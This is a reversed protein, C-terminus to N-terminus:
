YLRLIVPLFVRYSTFTATISVNGTITVTAPNATDALDGSWSDFTWGPDAAATLTVVDGYGYTSQAPDTVVSGRGVVNVTLTNTVNALPVVTVDGFSADWLHSILMMSGNQPDSLGEQATLDWQSPEAQGAEWVKLSYLGGQEPVTEVRMKLVYPVGTTLIRTDDWGIIEDNNGYIELHGPRYWGIAGLPLWGTKPQWDAYPNDTHGNWRMLIGTGGNGSMSHITIPVTVEYDTWAVDGIAILRDYGPEVTRVSDGELAWLGDVVQAVEQIDTVSSWDISYPLPWVNGSSYTVTVTKTSQNSLSDTATIVVRNTGNVLDTHLIDVNFDGASVLRRGDPGISLTSASGGNLSYVLSAVGNVDSVNGLINVWPQPLGIHGFRQASGYWVEINPPASSGSPYTTVTFNGSAGMNTSSDQSAVQYNYTTGPQLSTIVLAHNITLDAHSVSGLEYATTEGYKVTGTAPEDTSWTVWLETEGVADQVNYILPPTDDVVTGGDEPDVPSATNFFYDIYGTHAPSDADMANGVFAGVQTVTMPQTFSISATWNTGDYAYSQTWQDGARTVRMFLPAVDTATIDTDIKISSSGGTFSAAFIKTDAGDSYFDFRLFNDSDQEVLVGQIQYAETVPSEFKIEIEFDTDDAPQMIRPARNGDTWVDHDTGAPVSISVWADQTNAGTMILTADGIPDIFTWLGTNLNFANFDDSAPASAVGVNYAGAKAMSSHFFAPISFVAMSLCAYFFWLRKM